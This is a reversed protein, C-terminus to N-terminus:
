IAAIASPSVSRYGWQGFFYNVFLAHIQRIVVIISHFLTNRVREFFNMKLSSFATGTKPVVAPNAPVNIAAVYGDSVPWNSFMISTTNLLSSAGVFCEKFERKLYSDPTVQIFHDIILLDANRPRLLYDKFMSSKVFAGCYHFHLKLIDLFLFGGRLDWPRGLDLPINM